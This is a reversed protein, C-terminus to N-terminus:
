VLHVSTFLLSRRFDFKTTSAPHNFTRFVEL